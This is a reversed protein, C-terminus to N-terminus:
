EYYEGRGQPNIKTDPVGNFKNKIVKYPCKLYLKDLPNFGKSWLAYKQNDITLTGNENLKGVNNNKENLAIICKNIIGNARIIMSNLTAAFCVYDDYNHKLIQQNKLFQCLENIILEEEEQNVKEIQCDNKNGLQQISKFYLLFRKDGQLENEILQLLPPIAELYNNKFFNITLIVQCELDSNKISILNNWITNFTGRGDAFIRTNDHFKAIGDLGINYKRIGLQCLENITKYDLLYGNTTMGCELNIQPYLVKLQQIHKSIDIVINKALLPEGGFWQIELIKLKEARYTLLKKIGNVTSQNMAKLQYDEWCYNCRFNCKETPLITLRLRENSLAYAYKEAILKNM